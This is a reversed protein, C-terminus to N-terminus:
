SKSCNRTYGMRQDDTDGKKYKLQNADQVRIRPLLDLFSKIEGVVRTQCVQGLSALKWLM